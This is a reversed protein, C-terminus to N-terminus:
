LIEIGKDGDGLLGPLCGHQTTQRKTHTERTFVGDGGGAARMVAYIGAINSLGAASNRLAVSLHM